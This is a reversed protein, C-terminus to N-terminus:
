ISTISINSTLTIEVYDTQLYYILSLVQGAEIYCVSSSSLLSFLPFPFGLPTADVFGDFAAVCPPATFISQGNLLMQATNFNNLNFEGGLISLQISFVYRGTINCTITDPGITFANSVDDVTNDGIGSSQSAITLPLAYGGPQTNGAKVKLGGVNGPNSSPDIGIRYAVKPIPTPQQQFILGTESNNVVLTNGAQGSFSDPVDSLNEFTPQMFVPQANSNPGCVYLAGPSQQSLVNRFSM